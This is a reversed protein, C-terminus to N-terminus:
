ILKQCNKKWSAVTTSPEKSATSFASLSEETLSTVYNMQMIHEWGKIRFLKCVYNVIPRRWKKLYFRSLFNPSESTTPLLSTSALLSNIKGSLTSTVGAFREHGNSSSPLPPLLGTLYNFFM